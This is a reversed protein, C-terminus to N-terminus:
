VHSTSIANAGVGTAMAGILWFVRFLPVNALMAYEVMGHGILAGYGALVGVGVMWVLDSRARRTLRRAQVVLTMMLWVFCGLGVLGTEAAVLLFINHVVIPRGNRVFTTWDYKPMYFLYNSLGVGMIPHDQIMALAGQAMPVRSYAAGGDNSTIRSLILNRQSLILSIVLLLIVGGLVGSVHINHRRRHFTFALVVICAVTFGLWGGRSLSFVLGLTGVCLVLGGFVRHVAPVETFILALAFPMTAALYMAYGNGDGLTGYARNSAIQGVSFQLTESREGLFSVGLAHGSVAQYSGLLGELSAGLLLAWLLSKVDAEDEIANAVVLYLLFFGGMRGFQIAALGADRANVLSIGSVVLWALAPVTTLPYLRFEARRSALRALRCILLALVLIDILQVTLDTTHGDAATRTLLAPTGTGVSFPLLLGIAILLIRETDRCIVLITVFGIVMVLAITWKLPLDLLFVGGVVFGTLVSVAYQVAGTMGHRVMGTYSSRM